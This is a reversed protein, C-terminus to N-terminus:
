MIVGWCATQIYDHSVHGAPCRCINWATRRVVGEEQCLRALGGYQQSRRHLRIHSVLCIQGRAVAEEAYSFCTNGEGCSRGSKGVLHLKVDDVYVSVRVKLHVAFLVTMAEQLFM